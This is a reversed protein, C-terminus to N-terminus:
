PLAAGIIDLLKPIAQQIDRPAVAPPNSAANEVIMGAYIRRLTKAQTPSLSVNVNTPENGATYAAAPVNVSTTAM